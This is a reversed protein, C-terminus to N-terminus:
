TTSKNLKLKVYLRSSTFNQLGKEWLNTLVFSIFFCSLTNRKLVRTLRKDLLMSPHCSISYYFVPILFAWSENKKRKLCPILGKQQVEGSSNWMRCTRGHLLLIQLSLVIIHSHFGPVWELWSAPWLLDLDKRLLYFWYEGPFEQLVEEKSFPRKAIICSSKFLRQIVNSRREIKLSPCLVKGM